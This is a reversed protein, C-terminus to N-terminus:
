KNLEAIVEHIVEWEYGKQHLFNKLKERKRFPDSEKYLLVEKKEALKKATEWYTDEPIEERIAQEILRDHIDRLGLERRIRIRGWSKMRFKGRAFSHAYREENLFGDQILGIMMEELDEGYLGLDLLRSRVEKHCRDQYACYREIKQKIEPLEASM